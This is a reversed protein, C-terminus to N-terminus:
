PESVISKMGKASWLRIKRGVAKGKVVKRVFEKGGVVTYNSDYSWNIIHRKNLAYIAPTNSFLKRLAKMIKPNKGLYCGTAWFHTQGDMHTVINKVIVSLLGNKQNKGDVFNYYDSGTQLLKEIEPADIKSSVKNWWIPISRLSGDPNKMSFLPLGIKVTITKGTGQDWTEHGHTLFVIDGVKMSKNEPKSLEKNMNHLFEELSDVAGLSVFKGQRSKKYRFEYYEEAYSGHGFWAGVYFHIRGTSCRAPPAKPDALYCINNYVPAAFKKKKKKKKPPAM